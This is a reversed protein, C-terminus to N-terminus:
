TGSRFAAPREPHLLGIAMERAAAAASGAPVADRATGALVFFGQVVAVLASAAAAPRACRFLGVKVGARVIETLREIMGTIVAEYATRVKANRLAEASLTIWCALTEPDAADLALHFDIFAALERVPDGGAKALARDLNARHGAGLDDLVALLIELKNDFHYHVLGTTLDAAAAVDSISAGDYGKKAMVKRLGRAIQARREDTNSPRAM